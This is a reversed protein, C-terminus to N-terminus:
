AKTSKELICELVDVRKQNFRRVGRVQYDVSAITLIDSALIDADGDTVFSWAQGLIGLAIANKDNDIPEFSGDFTSTGSYTGKSSAYSLRKKTATATFNFRGM